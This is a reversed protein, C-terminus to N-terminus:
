SDVSFGTGIKYQCTLRRGRHNLVFSVRGMHGREPYGRTIGSDIPNEKNVVDFECTLDSRESLPYVSLM